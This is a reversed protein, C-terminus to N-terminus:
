HDKLREFIHFTEGRTATGRYRWKKQVVDGSKVGRLGKAGEEILHGIEATTVVHLEPVIDKGTERVIKLLAQRHVAIRNKARTYDRRSIESQRIQFELEDEEQRLFNLFSKVEPGYQELQSATAAVAIIVLLLVAASPKLLIAKARM